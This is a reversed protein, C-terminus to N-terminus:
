GYPVGCLDELGALAQAVQSGTITLILKESGPIAGAPFSADFGIAEGAEIVRNEVSEQRTGEPDIRLPRIVADARTPGRATLKFPFTGIGTTRIPFRAGAVANPGIDVSVSAAGIVQFGEGEEIDLQVTQAADLYNYVAVPLWMEEGRTVAYPLDPEVFFDQFVVLDGAGIGVGAESTSVARLKWNTISDPSTLELTARGATDTLLMPEWVWTEPFFQRVRSPEALGYESGGGDLVPLGYTGTEAKNGPWFQYGEPVSLSPAPDGSVAVSLGAASIIDKTGLTHPRSAFDEMMERDTPGGYQSAVERYLRTMDLRNQALAFVSEDVVAVGVMAPAGADIAIKVPSGPEVEEADFAVSLGTEASGGVAFSVSDTGVEDNPFIRYVMLKAEPAMAPTAVMRITDGPVSGSAVARGGALVEYHTPGPNTGAVLFAVTEGARIAGEGLRTVTLYSGTPSFAIGGYIHVLSRYPGESAEGDIVLYEVSRPIPLSVRARGGQTVITETRGEVVQGRDDKAVMTVTVPCSLPQGAPDRTEVLIDYDQGPKASPSLAILRVEFPAEPIPLFQVTKEAHGAADTVTIAISTGHVDERTRSPTEIAPLEFRAEGAAMPATHRAYPEWDEELRNGVVEIEGDVPKGFFYSARVTGAIPEDPLFWDRDFAVEIKFRPLVYPEVRVTEDATADGGRARITWEGANLEDALPLEFTGIGFANTAIERRLIKNKKADRIEVEVAGALPRLANSLLIARGQITQGPKYIPKDTEILLVRTEIATVPIALREPGGGADIYAAIRYNGSEEGAPIRFPIVAWGEETRNSALTEGAGSATELRLEFTAPERSYILVSADASPYITKPGVLMSANPAGGRVIPALFVVFSLVALRGCPRSM